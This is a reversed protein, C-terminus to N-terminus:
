HSFKLFKDLFKNKFANAFLKNKFIEEFHHKHKNYGKEAVVCVQDEVQVQIFTDNDILDYQRLYSLEDISKLQDFIKRAYPTCTTSIWPNEHLLDFDEAEQCAYKGNILLVIGNFNQFQICKVGRNEFLNERLDSNGFNIRNLISCTIALNRSAVYRARFDVLNNAYVELTIKPRNGFNYTNM